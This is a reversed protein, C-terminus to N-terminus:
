KQNTRISPYSVINHANVYYSWPLVNGCNPDPLLPDPISISIPRVKGNPGITLIRDTTLTPSAYNLMKFDGNMKTVGDIVIDDKMKAVGLVKLEAKFKGDGVFVSEGTVKIDKDVTLRKQITVSDRIVVTSDITVKGGLNTNGVVDLKSNPTTTGVGVNGNAPLTNATQSFSIETILIVAVLLIIKLTKM